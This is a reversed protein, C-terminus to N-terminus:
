QTGTTFKQREKEKERAHTNDDDDVRNQIYLYGRRYERASASERKQTHPQNTFHTPHIKKRERERHTQKTKKWEGGEAKEKLQKKWNIGDLSKTIM